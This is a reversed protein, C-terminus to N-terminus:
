PLTPSSSPRGALTVLFRPGSFAGFGDALDFSGGSSEVMVTPIVVVLVALLLVGADVVRALM